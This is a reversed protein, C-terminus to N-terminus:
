LGSKVYGPTWVLLKLFELQRFINCMGDFKSIMQVVM